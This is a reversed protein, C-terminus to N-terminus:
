CLRHAEGFLFPMDRSVGCDAELSYFQLTYLGDQEIVSVSEPRAAFGVANRCECEGLTVTQHMVGLLRAIRRLTTGGM